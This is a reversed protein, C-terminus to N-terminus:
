PVPRSAVARRIVDLVEAPKEIQVYHGTGSLLHLTSTAIAAHLREASNRRFADDAQGVIQVPQQIQPYRPSQAALNTAADLTELAIAHEVKPSSWLQSRFTIFEESPPHGHFVDMLGARMRAPGLSPGIARAIGLGISPLALLSFLPEPKRSPEYSASDLIVYADVTGPKRLAVALATAGGYSHGVLVVHELKLVDILALTLRANYELSYEGADGSYGHGPRDFVSVRYSKALEDILLSWDEISGPSGHVLMVDPGQGRQLVRIPIGLVFMHRGVVGPPIEANPRYTAGAIALCVLLGGFAAALVSLCRVVRSKLTM